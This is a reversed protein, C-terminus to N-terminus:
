VFAAGCAAPNLWDFSSHSPRSSWTRAYASAVSWRMETKVAGTRAGSSGGYRPM